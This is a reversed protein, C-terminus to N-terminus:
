QVHGLAFAVRGTQNDGARPLPVCFVDGDKIDTFKAVLGKNQGARRVCGVGCNNLLTPAAVGVIGISNDAFGSGGKERWARCGM